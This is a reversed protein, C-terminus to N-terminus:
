DPWEEGRRIVGNKNGIWEKIYMWNLMVNYVIYGVTIVGIETDMSLQNIIVKTKLIRTRSRAMIQRALIHVYHFM